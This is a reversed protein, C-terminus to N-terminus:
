SIQRCPTQPLYRSLFIIKQNASQLCSLHYTLDFCLFRCDGRENMVHWHAAFHFVLQAHAIDYAAHSGMSVCANSLEALQPCLFCITNCQENSAAWSISVYRKGSEKWWSTMLNVKLMVPVYWGVQTFLRWTGAMPYKLRSGQDILINDTIILAAFRRIVSKQGCRTVQIECPFTFEWVRNDPIIIEDMRLSSLLLWCLPVPWEDSINLLVESLKM